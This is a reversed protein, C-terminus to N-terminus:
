STVTGDVDVVTPLGAPGDLTFDAALLSGGAPGITVSDVHRMGQVRYLVGMLDNIRIEPEEVVETVAGGSPRGYAAPHLFARLAAVGEENVADPDYGAHSQGVFAIDVDTYTFDIVYVALNLVRGEALASTVRAKGDASVAEGTASQM